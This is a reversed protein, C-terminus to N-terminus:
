DLHCLLLLPGSGAIVTGGAPVVGASKLLIQAAGANMVGPLTWGPFPCSREMGGGAVIVREAHIVRARDERVIGIERGDEAEVRCGIFQYGYYEGEPLVALRDPDAMVLRGRLEEALVVQQPDLALSADLM